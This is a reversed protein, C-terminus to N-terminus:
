PMPPVPTPRVEGHRREYDSVMKRVRSKLAEVDPIMDRSKRETMRRDLGGALLAKLGPMLKARDAPTMRDISSMLGPQPPILGKAGNDGLLLRVM